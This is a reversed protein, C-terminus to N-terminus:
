RLEDARLHEDDWVMPALSRAQSLEADGGSYLQRLAAGRLGLLHSEAGPSLAGEAELFSEARELYELGREADNTEVAHRALVLYAYPNTPDIQLAREYLGLAAVPRGAADADLGDLCLRLSARRTPDDGPDVESLRLADGGVGLRPGM